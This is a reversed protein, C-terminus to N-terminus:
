KGGMIKLSVTDEVPCVNESTCEMCRICQHDLVADKTAVDINMPCADSCMNCNICTDKNRKIKFVSFTNTIGLLAGYPCAYKCWPREIFITGIIVLSLILLASVAVEGTWFNFLAYFPDVNQFILVGANATVYIVRALVLYRFYRLYVDIKKPVTFNLKGRFVRNFLRRTFEQFSGLPCIWGCFVPGLLVSLFMVLGMLVLSSEHTKKTFTGATIFQYLTEVGGFPCIAHLSASSLFPIGGGSEALTHNVAILGVLAFFFLQTAARIKVKKM